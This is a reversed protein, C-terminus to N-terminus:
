APVAELVKAFADAFQAREEPTGVSVRICRDLPAVGPMRIFVDEGALAQLLSRARDGSGVDIAVFNTASPLASLGLRKALRYYDQRGAEVKAAVEAIFDPDNLSALAGIQAVRNMGFHNRIKNLGEILKRHGIAYGVRAGAMGHAKSFTRLRLVRPNGTDIPPTVDVPAFEHYAEDLLLVTGDPVAAITEAIADAAHWTGMPNDPNALFLLPAGVKHAAALLAQPDEHDDRYPVTHLVAGYGAVHYNFTPYAGHSTVVPTGPGALMRVVLGLFDDIGTSVCIEDIAVGYRESLAARLDYSEPDAYWNTQAVAERMAAAAKPSLGFASENAGIRLKFVRGRQREIAEPGVFPITAPLGAVIPTFPIRTEGRPQGM